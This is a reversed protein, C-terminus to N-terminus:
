RLRNPKPFHGKKQHVRIMAVPAHESGDRGSCMLFPFLSLNVDYRGCVRCWESAGFENKPKKMWIKM